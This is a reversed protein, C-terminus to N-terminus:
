KPLFELQSAPFVKAETMKRALEDASMWIMIDDMTRADDAQGSTPPRDVFVSENLSSEDSPYPPVVLRTYCERGALPDTLPHPPTTTAYFANQLEHLDDDDDMPVCQGSESSLGGLRNRGHSLIVFVAGDAIDWRGYDRKRAKMANATIPLGIKINAMFELIRPLSPSAGGGEAADVLCDHRLCIISPADLGLAFDPQRKAGNANEGRNIYLDSEPTRRRPSGPDGFDKLTAFTDATEARTEPGFGLGAHSFNPDIRYTFFNGWLDTFPSAGITRWPLLGKNRECEGPAAATQFNQADLPATASALEAKRDEWGDGDVDPCPFYPRGAPITQPAGAGTLVREATRNRLVYALLAGQVKQLDERTARIDDERLSQRAPGLAVSVLLGIIVTTISLEVLTFGRFRSITLRARM